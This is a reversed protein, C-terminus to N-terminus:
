LDGAVQAGGADLLEGSQHEADVALSLGRSRSWGPLVGSVIGGVMEGEGGSGQVPGPMLHGGLDRGAGAEDDEADEQVAAALYKQVISDLV